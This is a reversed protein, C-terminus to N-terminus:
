VVAYLASVRDIVTKHSPHNRDMFAPDNRLRVIEDSAQQKTMTRPDNPDGSSGGKFGESSGARKGILALLEVLPAAGMHKEVETLLEPSLGAAKVVTRGAELNVNLESGWRAELAKIGAENQAAIDPAEALKKSAFGNWEDVMIQARKPDLGLKHAMTKAFGLMDPDAGEAKLDYKDASEPRGLKGWFKDWAEPAADAAPVGVVDAATGNSSLLKNANYYAVALEEPTRYQKADLLQRVPEETVAGWWPAQSPPQTGEVGAPAQTPPSASLATAAAGPSLPPAAAAPDAANFLVVPHIKRM